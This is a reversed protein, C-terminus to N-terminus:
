DDFWENLMETLMQAVETKGEVSLINIVKVMLDTKRDRLLALAVRQVEPSLLAEGTFQKVVVGTDEGALDAIEALNVGNDNLVNRLLSVRDM